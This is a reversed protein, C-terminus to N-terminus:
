AGTVNMGVARLENALENAGSTAVGDSIYRITCVIAGESAAFTVAEDPSDDDYLAAEAAGADPRPSPARIAAQAIAGKLAFERGPAEDHSDQDVVAELSEGNWGGARLAEGLHGLLPRLKDLGAIRTSTAVARDGIGMDARGSKGGHAGREELSFFLDPDNAFSEELCSM